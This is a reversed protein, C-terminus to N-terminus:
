SFLKRLFGKKKNVKKVTNTSAFYNNMDEKNVDLISLIFQDYTMQREELLGVFYKEAVEKGRTKEISVLTKYLKTIKNVAFSPAAKRKAYHSIIKGNADYKTEFNTVVWYYRGDKSLNKVLAYINEGKKLRSWMKKFIVQPMDPHRIINHPKGMLEYEEYGSITMFYENAFEIVGKHDTKSMITKTPDLVIEKNINQNTSTNIENGIKNQSAYRKEMEDYHFPTIQENTYNM